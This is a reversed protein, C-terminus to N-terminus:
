YYLAEGRVNMDERNNIITMNPVGGIEADTGRWYEGQCESLNGLAKTSKQDGQPSQSHQAYEAHKQKTINAINKFSKFM